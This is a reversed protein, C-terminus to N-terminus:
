TSGHNDPRDSAQRVVRRLISYPRLAQELMIFQSNNAFEVQRFDSTTLPSPLTVISLAGDPSLVELEEGAHIKNRIELVCRGNVKEETVNGVFISESQSTSRDRQYDSNDIRGKM